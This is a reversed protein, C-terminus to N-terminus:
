YGMSPSTTAPKFANYAESAFDRGGWGMFNNPLQVMGGQLLGMSSMEELFSPYQTMQSFMSYKDTAREPSIYMGQFRKAAEPMDPATFRNYLAQPSLQDSVFNSAAEGTTGLPDAAFKKYPDLISNKM